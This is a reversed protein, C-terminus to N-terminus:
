IKDIGHQKLWNEFDEKQDMIEKDYNEELKKIQELLKPQGAVIKDINKEFEESMRSLDSVDIEIGLYRVARRVAAKIGKPNRSQLYVPIETVFNVMEVKKTECLSMLFTVISAPGQYNTFRVDYNSLNEKKTNKSFSCTVRVERTHPVLGAVSGVFCIKKVGAEEVVKFICDAYKEWRLNPEKGSFLIIKEKESYFFENKPFILKKVVGEEILTYPRFQAVQEMTGPMNLIYFKESKIEAFKVAGLKNKLYEVSGTSVDGGDMWGSFGLLMSTAHQIKKHIILEKM